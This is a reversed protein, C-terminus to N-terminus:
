SSDDEVCVGQSVACAPLSTLDQTVSFEVLQLLAVIIPLRRPEM